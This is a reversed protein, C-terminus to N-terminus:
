AWRTRSRGSGQYIGKTPGSLSLIGNSNGAISLGDNTGTGANYIMIGGSTSPDMIIDASNANFGGATLYYIGNGGASAQQFIVLDGNTFKPLNPQGPGGYSGPVLTYVNGYTNTISGGGAPVSYNLPSPGAAVVTYSSDYVITVSVNTATPAVNNGKMTVNAPAPQSPVPLYALPDPTPHVGTLINGSTPTTIMGGGGSVAYGGTIDFEPAYQRGDVLEEEYETAPHVGV